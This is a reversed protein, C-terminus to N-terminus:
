DKAKDLLLEEARQISEKMSSFVNEEGILDYLNSKVMENLPQVHLGTIVLQIGERRCKNYFSKLAHMGTSDIVPVDRFRLIRVKPRESIQRDVEDFSNAAGFFLPGNIEYIEVRPPINFVSLPQEDASDDEEFERAFVKINTADSMRKMFIFASLVVGVEFLLM